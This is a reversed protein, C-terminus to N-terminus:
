DADEFEKVKLKWACRAKASKAVSSIFKKDFFFTLM